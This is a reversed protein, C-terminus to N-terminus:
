HAEGDAGPVALHAHVVPIMKGVLEKSGGGSHALLVLEDRVEIYHGDRHCFRYSHVHNRHEFLKGLNAFVREKDEPHIRDAWFSKTALCFEVTYGFLDCVAGSVYTVDFDGVAECAYFVCDRRDSQVTHDPFQM